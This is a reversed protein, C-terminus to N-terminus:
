QMRSSSRKRGDASEDLARWTREPDARDTLVYGSREQRLRALTKRVHKSAAFHKWLLM